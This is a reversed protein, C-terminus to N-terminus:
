GTCAPEPARTSFPSKTAALKKLKGSIQALSADNFGSGVKGAYVLKGAADYVGLLLAGLGSRSGKPDTWGGVVFEQRQACKLKIWDPSRRSSYISDRRKGIIGELGLKCASAVLQDPPGISPRM